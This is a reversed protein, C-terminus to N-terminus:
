AELWKLFLYKLVTDATKDGSIQFEDSAARKFTPDRKKVLGDAYGKLQDHSLRRLLLGQSAVLSDDLRRERMHLPGIQVDESGLYDVRKEFEDRTVGYELPIPSPMSNRLYTNLRKSLGQRIKPGDMDNYITSGLTAFKPQNGSVYGISVAAEWFERPVDGRGFLRRLLHRLCQRLHKMTTMGHCIYGVISTPHGGAMESSGECHGEFKRRLSEVIYTERCETVILLAILMLGLRVKQDAKVDNPRAKWRKWIDASLGLTKAMWYFRLAHMEHPPLSLRRALFMEGHFIIILLTYAAELEPCAHFFSHEPVNRHETRDYPAVKLSRSSHPHCFREVSAPLGTSTLYSFDSIIRRTATVPIPFILSLLKNAEGAIIHSTVQPSTSHDQIMIFQQVHM